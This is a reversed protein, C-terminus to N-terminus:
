SLLPRIHREFTTKRLLLAVGRKKGLNLLANWTLTLEPNLKPAVIEKVFRSLDLFNSFIVATVSAINETMPLQPLPNCDAGEDILEELTKIEM